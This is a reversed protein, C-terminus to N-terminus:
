STSVMWFPTLYKWGQWFVIYCLIYLDETARHIYIRQLGFSLSKKYFLIISAIDSASKSLTQKPCPTQISFIARTAQLQSYIMRVEAGNYHLM